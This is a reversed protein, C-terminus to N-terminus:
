TFSEGCYPCFLISPQVDNGCNTCFASGADSIYMKVEPEGTVTVSPTATQYETQYQTQLVSPSSTSYTSSGEIIPAIKQPTYPQPKTFKKSFTTGQELKRALLFCVIVGVTLIAIGITYTLNLYFRSRAYICSYYYTIEGSECGMWRRFMWITEDAFIRFFVIGTIGWVVSGFIESAFSARIIVIILVAGILCGLGMIFWDFLLILGAGAAILFGAGGVILMATRSIFQLVRATKNTAYRSYMKGGFIPKDPKSSM